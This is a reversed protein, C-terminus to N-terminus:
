LQEQGYRGMQMFDDATITSLADILAMHFSGTGKEGAEAFAKEGRRGGM